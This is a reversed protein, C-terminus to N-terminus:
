QDDNPQIGKKRMFLADLEMATASKGVAEGIYRIM